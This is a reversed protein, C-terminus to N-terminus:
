KVAGTVSAAGTVLKIILSQLKELLSSAKETNKGFIRKRLIEVADAREADLLSAVQALQKSIDLMDQSKKVIRSKLDTSRTIIEQIRQILMSKSAERRTNDQKLWVIQLHRFLEPLQIVHTEFNCDKLIHINGGAGFLSPMADYDLRSEFVLDIPVSCTQIARSERRIFFNLAALVLNQQMHQNHTEQMLLSLQAEKESLKNQILDLECGHYPGFEKFGQYTIDQDLLAASASIYLISVCTFIGITHIYKVFFRNPDM